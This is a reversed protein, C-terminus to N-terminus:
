TIQYSNAPKSNDQATRFLRPEHQRSRNQMESIVDDALSEILTSLANPDPNGLTSHEVIKNRIYELKGNFVSNEGMGAIQPHADLVREM